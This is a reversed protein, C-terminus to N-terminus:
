KVDKVLKDVYARPYNDALVGKLMNIVKEKHQLESYLEDMIKQVDKHLLYVKDDYELSKCKWSM